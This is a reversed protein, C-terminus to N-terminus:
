HQKPTGHPLHPRGFSISVSPPSPQKKVELWGQRRSDLGPVSGKETGQLPCNMGQSDGLLLASEPVTPFANPVRNPGQLRTMGELM